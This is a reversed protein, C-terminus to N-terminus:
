EVKMRVDEAQKLMEEKSVEYTQSKEQYQQAEEEYMKQQAGYEKEDQLM